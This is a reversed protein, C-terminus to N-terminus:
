HHTLTSAGHRRWTAGGRAPGEPVTAEEHRVLVPERLAPRQADEQVAVLVLPAVTLGVKSSEM